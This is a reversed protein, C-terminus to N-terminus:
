TSRHMLKIKNEKLASIAGELLNDTINKNWESVVIGIKIKTPSTLPVSELASLNVKATAM